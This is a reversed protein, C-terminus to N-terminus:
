RENAAREVNRFFTVTSTRLARIALTRGILSPVWFDPEFTSEYSLHTGEAVGRLLTRAIGLRMDSLEPIVTAVLQGPGYDVREVRVVTRCFLGACADIRTRVRMSSASDRAVLEARRVRPDLLPYRSYDLLVAEVSHPPADLVAEFVVHFVGDHFDTREVRVDIACAPSAVALLGLALAGIREPASSRRM